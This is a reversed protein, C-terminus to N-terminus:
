EQVAKLAEEAEAKTAYLKTEHVQSLENDKSIFYQFGEINFIISVVLYSDIITECDKIQLLSSCHKCYGEDNKYKSVIIWVYDGVKVKPLIVGQETLKTAILDALWDKDISCDCEMDCRDIIGGGSLIERIKTELNM